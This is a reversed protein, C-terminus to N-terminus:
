PLQEVKFFQKEAEGAHTDVFLFSSSMTSFEIGAEWTKLDVSSLTRYRQGPEVGVCFSLTNRIRKVEALQGAPPGFVRVTVPASISVAGTDDVASATLVHVGNRLEPWMVAYPTRLAEGIKIGDSYFEVRIISGNPDAASVQLQVPACSEIEAGDAPSILFIDPLPNAQQEVLLETTHSNDAPFPDFEAGSISAINVALGPLAARVTITFEVDEGKALTAFRAVGERGQQTWQNGPLSSSVWEFEPAMVNTISDLTATDPGSNAVTIRCQVLNGTFAKEVQAVAQISLNAAPTSLMRLSLSTTEYSLIEVLKTAAVFGPKSM